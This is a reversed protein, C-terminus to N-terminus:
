TLPPMIAVILGSGVAGGCGVAGGADGIGAAAAGAGGMAATAGDAGTPPCAAFATLEATISAHLAFKVNDIRIKTRTVATKMPNVKAIKEKPLIASIAFFKAFYRHLGSIIGNAPCNPYSAFSFKLKQIEFMRM